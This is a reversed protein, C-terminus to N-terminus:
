TCPVLMTGTQNACAPFTVSPASANNVIKNTSSSDLLFTFTTRSAGSDVLVANNFRTTTLGIVNRTSTSAVELGTNQCCTAGTGGVRYSEMRLNTINADMGALYLGTGVNNADWLTVKSDTIDLSACSVAACYIGYNPSTVKSTTFHSAIVNPGDHNGNAIYLGYHVGNTKCRFILNHNAYQNRDRGGDEFIAYGQAVNGNSFWDFEVDSLTLWSVCDLHIGGIAHGGAGANSIDAFTLHEIFGGSQATMGNGITLIAIASATVIRACQRTSSGWSTGAEGVLRFAFQSASITLGVDSYGQGILYTGCPFFITGGSQQLQNLASQIAITDDTKGNGTAGFSKVDIWPSPGGIQLSGAVATETSANKPGATAASAILLVGAAMLAFRAGTATKSRCVRSLKSRILQIGALSTLEKQCLFLPRASIGREGFTYLSYSKSTAVDKSTMGSMGAGSLLRNNNSSDTAAATDIRVPDGDTNVGIRSVTVIAPLGNVPVTDIVHCNVCGAFVIDAEAFTVFPRRSINKNGDPDPEM